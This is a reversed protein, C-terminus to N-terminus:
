NKFLIEAKELAYHFSRNAERTALARYHSFNLAEHRDTPEDAQPATQLAVEPTALTDYDAPIDCTFWYDVVLADLALEDVLSLKKGVAAGTKWHSPRAVVLMLHKSDAPAGAKSDALAVLFLRGRDEDSNSAADDGLEEEPHEIKHQLVVFSACAMEACAGQKGTTMISAHQEVRAQTFAGAGNV